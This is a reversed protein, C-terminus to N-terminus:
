NNGTFTLTDGDWMALGDMLASAQARLDPPLDPLSAALSLPEPPANRAAELSDYAAADMLGLTDAEEWSVPIRDMGSNYDYPAYDSGWRSLAAWIPSTTLAVMETASAGAGGVAGYAIRWRSPWDRPQTREGMRVLRYAPFALSGRYAEAQARSAAQTTQTELILNQRATGSLDRITGEDGPEPTYGIADLMDTIAHRAETKSAGGKLIAAAQQRIKLLTALDDVLAGFISRVTLEPSMRAWQESTMRVPLPIKANLIDAASPM